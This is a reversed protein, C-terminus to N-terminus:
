AAVSQERRIRQPLFDEALPALRHVERQLGARRGGEAIPDHDDLALGRGFPDFVLVRRKRFSSHPIGLKERIILMPRIPAPLMLSVCARAAATIGSTAM